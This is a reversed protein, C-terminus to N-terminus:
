NCFYDKYPSTYLRFYPRGGLRIIVVNENDYFVVSKIQGYTHERFTFQVQIELSMKAIKLYLKFYNIFTKFYILRINCICQPKGLYVLDYIYIGICM